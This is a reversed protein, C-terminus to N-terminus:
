RVFTQKNDCVYTKRDPFLSGITETKIVNCNHEKAYLKWDKDVQTAHYIVSPVLILIGIGLIVMFKGLIDIHWLASIYSIFKNLM